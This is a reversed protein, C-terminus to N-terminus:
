PEIRIRPDAGDAADDPGEEEHAGIQALLRQALEDLGASKAADVARIAYYLEQSRLLGSVRGLVPTLQGLAMAGATEATAVFGPDGPPPPPSTPPAAEACRLRALIRLIDGHPSGGDDDRGGYGVTFKAPQAAPVYVDWMTMHAATVDRLVERLSRMRVEHPLSPDWAIALRALLQHLTAAPFRPAAETVEEEM